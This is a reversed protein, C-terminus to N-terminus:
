NHSKCLYCCKGRGAFRVDLWCESLNANPGTDDLRTHISVDGNRGAVQVDSEDCVPEPM